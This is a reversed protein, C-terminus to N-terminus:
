KRGLADQRLLERQELIVPDEFPIRYLTVLLEFLGLFYAEENRLDAYKAGRLLFPLSTKEEGELLLPLITDRESEKNSGLRRNIVNVETTLYGGKNSKKLYLPTGVVVIFDAKEMNSSIFRPILKGIAANDRDDLIAKIGADVLDKVLRAVWREHESIDRAYSIFCSPAKTEGHIKRAIAKIRTLVVGFKTRCGALKLQHAIQKKERDDALTSKSMKKSVIKPTRTPNERSQDKLITSIHSMNSKPSHDPRAHNFDFVGAVKPITNKKSCESCYIFDKGERSRKVVEESKQYYGCKPNSCKVAPYQKVTVACENLFEEFYKQFLSRTAKKTKKGYYLMFDVEGEYKGIQRIGCIENNATKYEAENEWRNTCTFITTYGLRVVLRAYLNEVEGSITYWVEEFTKIENNRPKKQKIQSPFVLFVEGDQRDRFCFNHELFLAIAADLLLEKEPKTLNVIEPFIYEGRLLCGEDIMGPGKPYKESELVISAALNYLVDPALLISQAGSSQRLVKVYGHSELLKVATMMEDDTFQLDQYSEHLQARLETTEMLVKTRDEKEKMDLVYEKIKKFTATTVTTPMNDWVIEKKMRGILEDVGTEDFASTIVYGGTVDFNKCFAEFLKKEEPTVPHTRRDSQTGVLIKQCPREKRHLLMKLWYEVGALPVQWNSSDFLALALDLDDLFLAHIPRYEPQGAFDWLVAECETGGPQTTHLAELVWFQQGHTKPHSKFEGHALRWGLTTKGVESKGVLAIRATKYSTSEEIPSVQTPKLEWIRIITDDEDLTALIPEKPHFALGMLFPGSSHGPEDFIAVTQWTDCRLLRVTGDGSKTALYSGDGSFSVGGVFDTHGEIVSKPWGTEPNWIRITCDRGASALMEGDPSWALSFVFGYHGELTHRLKNTKTDWLRITMDDSASALTREDPSWVVCNVPNRHGELLGYLEGAETDWLRVINDDYGSALIKGNPLWAVSLVSSFSAKLVRRIKGTDADWLRITNDSSGTAIMKGDPSWTVQHIRGSHGILKQQPQGTKLDWFIVTNDESPSALTRGDPSWAMRFIPGNHGRLLCQIKIGPPLKSRDVRIRSELGNEKM